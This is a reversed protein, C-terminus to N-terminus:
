SKIKKGLSSGFVSVSTQFAIYYQHTFIIINDHVNSRCSIVHCPSSGSIFIRHFYYLIFYLTRSDFVRLLYGSQLNVLSM